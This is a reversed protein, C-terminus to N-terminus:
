PHFNVVVWREPNHANTNGMTSWTYGQFETGGGLFNERETSWDHQARYAQMKMSTGPRPPFCADSSMDSLSRWPIALEVTWGKDLSTPNNISGELAVAHRLGPLFFDRDGVRGLSETSRRTYYLYDPLKFLEELRAWDSSQVIPDLWTWQIQYTCNIPNVGIEYYSDGLDIFLEVDDDHVYVHENPLVTQARIDPDAARFGAYLFDDDWLLAVRTEYGTLEGNRIEGFPESWVAGDWAAKSLRGDIPPPSETWRCEYKPVAPLERDPVDAVTCWKVLDMFRPPPGFELHGVGSELQEAM